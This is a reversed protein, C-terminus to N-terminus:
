SIELIKAAILKADNLTAKPTFSLADPSDITTAYGQDVLSKAFRQHKKTLWNHGTFLLVPAGTGCAESCMSVSDATAIILDACTYFGMIPNEKKEGWMYTYSPIGKIKEMIIKEAKEGTRRSSTILFSGGLKQHIQQLEDGLEEANDLPWPKNKIAGGIIVAILPKPLNEFIPMWKKRDQELFETFIRTPAGTIVLSKPNQRNQLKDHAPVILMEMDDIGGGSPFMLQIIKAKNKSQKRIYRAVPVTRRSISLILDPWPATLPDSKKTDVGILTRGRLVNPLSGLFNYVINKEVINLENQLAMAIGKAQGVSGRRDDALIWLTRKM